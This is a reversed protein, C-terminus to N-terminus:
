NANNEMIKIKLNKLHEFDKEVTEIEKGQFMITGTHYINVNLIKEEGKFICLQIGDQITREKTTYFSKLAKVWAHKHNTTFTINQLKNRHFNKKMTEINTSGQPSTGFNMPKWLWQVNRLTARHVQTRMNQILRMM